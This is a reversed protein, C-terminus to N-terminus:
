GSPRRPRARRRAPIIRSTRGSAIMRRPRETKRSRPRHSAGRSHGGTPARRSRSPRRRPHEDGGDRIKAFYATSSVVAMSEDKEARFLVAVDVQAARQVSGSIDALLDGKGGNNKRTHALMWCTPKDVDPADELCEAVAAFVEAQDEERNSDGGPQFRALSDIWISDVHGHRTLDCLEEWVQSGAKVEERALVIVRELTAPPLGLMEVSRVLQRSTLSGGQENEIMVLWKDKPAPHLARGFMVMPEGTPNRRSAFLLAWATTKGEGPPGAMVIVAGPTAIGEWIYAVKRAAEAGIAAAGILARKKILPCGYLPDARRQTEQEERHQALTRVGMMKRPQPSGIPDGSASTQAWEFPPFHVPVLNALKVPRPGARVADDVQQTKDHHADGAQDAPSAEKKTPM